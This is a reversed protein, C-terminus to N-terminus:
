ITFIYHTSLTQFFFKEHFNLKLNHLRDYKYHIIKINKKYFNCIDYLINNNSDSIDTSFIIYDTIFNSNYKEIGVIMNAVAFSLNPTCRFVAATEAKM